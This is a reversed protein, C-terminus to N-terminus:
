GSDKEFVEYDTWYYGSENSEEITDSANKIIITDEVQVPRKM